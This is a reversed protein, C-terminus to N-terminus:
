KKSKASTAPYNVIDECVARNDQVTAKNADERAEKLKNQYETDEALAKLALVPQDINPMLDKLLREYGTDFKKTNSILKPCIEGLVDVAAIEEQTVPLSSKFEVKDGKSASHSAASTAPAAHAIMGTTCVIAVAFTKVWSFNTLQLNTKTM